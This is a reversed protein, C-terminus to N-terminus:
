IYLLGPLLFILTQLEAQIDVPLYPYLIQLSLLTVAAIFVGIFGIICILTIIIPRRTEAETPAATTM